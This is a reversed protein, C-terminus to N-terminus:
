GGGRVCEPHIVLVSRSGDPLAKLRDLVQAIGVHWDFITDGGYRGAIIWRDKGVLWFQAELSWECCPNELLYQRVWAQSSFDAAGRDAFFQAARSLDIGPRPKAFTGEYTLGVDRESLTGLPLRKGEKTVVDRRWLTRGSFIEFNEAGYIPGSNHAVTGRIRVGHARFWEIEQRLAAIGDHGHATCVGLSDNHLGLECGAVIFGRIWDSLPATRVFVDGYFEGYYVATHLLYFSGCLGQRALYRACRLATLPDADVDHRLGVVRTGQAPCAQLDQLPVIRMRPITRLEDVLQRYYWFSNSVAEYNAAVQAFYNELDRGPFASAPRFHESDPQRTWRSAGRFLKSTIAQLMDM